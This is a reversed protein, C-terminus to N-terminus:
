RSLVFAPFAAIAEAVLEPHSFILSHTADVEAVSVLPCEEAALALDRQLGRRHAVQMRQMDRGLLRGLLGKMPAVANFALSPRPCARHWAVIDTNHLLRFVQENTGERAVRTWGTLLRAVTPLGDGFRDLERQVLVPDEGPFRSAVGPGWGDINVVGATPAGAIAYRLAVMGGLSHGGVYPNDLGYHRVVADLDEVAAEWSWAGSGSDGHGRLDMTIVRWSPLLKAVKDLSSRKMGAGHMLVLDPGDGGFDTTVLRVSGNAAVTVPPLDQEHVEPVSM